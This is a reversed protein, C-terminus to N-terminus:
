DFRRYRSFNCKGHSTDLILINPGFIAEFPRNKEIISIFSQQKFLKLIEHFRMAYKMMESINTIIFQTYVIIM